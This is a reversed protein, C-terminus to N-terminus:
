VPHTKFSPFLDRTLTLSAIDCANKLSRIDKALNIVHLGVKRAVALSKRITASRFAPPM